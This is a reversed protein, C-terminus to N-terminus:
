YGFLQRFVFSVSGKIVDNDKKATIEKYKRSVIKYGRKEIKRIKDDITM